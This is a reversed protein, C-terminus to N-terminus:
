GDYDYFFLDFGDTTKGIPPPLSSSSSAVSCPPEPEPEDVVLVQPLRVDANDIGRHVEGYPLVYYFEGDFTTREGFRCGRCLGQHALWSGGVARDCVRCLREEGAFSCSSCWSM